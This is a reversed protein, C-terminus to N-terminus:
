ASFVSAFITLFWFMTGSFPHLAHPARQHPNMWKIIGSADQNLRDHQAGNQAKSLIRCM